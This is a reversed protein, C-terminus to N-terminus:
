LRLGALYQAFGAVAGETVSGDGALPSVPAILYERIGVMFDLM